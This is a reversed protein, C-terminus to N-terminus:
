LHKEIGKFVTTAMIEHGKENPHIGDSLNLKSDGAVKDLLFPILPINHKDALKPFVAKFRATYDAGYNPPVQIGALIIKVGNSKALEIGKSLNSEMANVDSGRLGDNAGLALLILDPKQKLHWKIRSTASASTAGSVGSNIVRWSKGSKQILSELLAPFAKERAVGYGETLSDGIIVLRKEGVNKTEQAYSSFNMLFILSFLFKM